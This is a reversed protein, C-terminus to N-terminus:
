DSLNVVYIGCLIVAAGIMNNLTLKEGFFFSAWLSTWLFLVGRWAYATMLEYERLIQQWLIAFCFVCLISGAYRLIFGMSFVHYNAGSKLFIGGISFIFYGSQLILFRKSLFCM